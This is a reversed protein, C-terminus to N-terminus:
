VIQGFIRLGAFEGSTPTRRSLPFRVSDERFDVRDFFISWPHCRKAALFGVVRLPGCCSFDVGSSNVVVQRSSFDPCHSALDSDIGPGELFSGGALRAVDGAEDDGAGEGLRIGPEPRNDLARDGVKFKQFAISRRNRRAPSQDIIRPISNLVSWSIM